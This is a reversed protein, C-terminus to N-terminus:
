WWAASAARKRWGVLPTARPTTTAVTRPARGLRLGMALADWAAQGAPWKGIEDAWAHHHQPGRLMDAEAASYLTAQAGNPWTVRRLSPEYKPKRGDPSIALLGSAGEVMVQRAEPLTAAVLAFRLTGDGEALGRVWEAGARTKGFGRGAMLLWTRWDGAPAFQDPRGWWRWNWLLHHRMGAAMRDIALARDAPSLAAHQEALSPAPPLLLEGM